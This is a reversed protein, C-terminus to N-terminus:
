VCYFVLVQTFTLCGFSLFATDLHKQTTNHLMELFSMTKKVVVHRIVWKFEGRWLQCALCSVAVFVTHMLWAVFFHVCGTNM